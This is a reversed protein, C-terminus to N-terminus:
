NKKKKKQNILETTTYQINQGTIKKYNSKLEAENNSNTNNDNAYNIPYTIINENLKSTELKINSM